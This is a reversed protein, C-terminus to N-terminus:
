LHILASVLGPSQSTSVLVLALDSRSVRLLVHFWVSRFNIQDVNERCCECLVFSFEDENVEKVAMYVVAYSNYQNTLVILQDRDCIYILITM